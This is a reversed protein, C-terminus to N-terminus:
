MSDCKATSAGCDLRGDARSNLLWRYLAAVGERIGIQPRWGTAKRFRATNSVYFKQDGLRWDGIRVQPISGHIEAIMEVLEVLSLTNAVGGGINFAHGAIDRMHQQALMFADVLDDVYLADRVQKGDGYVTLPRDDITRSLFHAIWGQAETGHQHPGYVSSMRFVVSPVGRNRAYELVYQDAVGKSCGYPSHFDLGRSEDIGRRLECVRPQHRSGSAELELDDLSGYVKDTSTFLLPPPDDLHRIAELLNLTGGANIEFDAIPDEFSTAVGVQAAFHFIQGAHRVALHLAKRDRIDALETKVREGHRSYLWELNYRGGVRSLDDYILVDHGSSLLRDALNCGIFGAGGTILTYRGRYRPNESLPADCIGM